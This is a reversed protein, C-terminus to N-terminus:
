PAAPIDETGGDLRYVSPRRDRFVNIRSRVDELQSFDATGTLVAEEEGAQVEVRGLPDILMSHGCFSLAGARGCGNVCTVYMQNEIARAQNLIQWHDLRPHPWQAPVFLMQIGQLALSRALECFRLDYCIILGMKVGDLSFTCLRDGHHFYEDEGSPSFGHIKDYRALQKGARDFVYATNFVKDGRRTVLSGGVIHIRRCAALDSLLARSEGGDPEALEALNEKPFFGLNWTEPLVAVDAGQDAARAVLDAAKKRNEEPRGLQVEMQLLALKM